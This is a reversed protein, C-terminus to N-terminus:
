HFDKIEDEELIKSISGDKLLFIRDAINKMELDHFYFVLIYSYFFFSQNFKLLSKKYMEPAELGMLNMVTAIVNAISPEEINSIDIKYEGTYQSILIFFPDSVEDVKMEPHGEIIENFTSKVAEYKEFNENINGLYNKNWFFTQFAYM